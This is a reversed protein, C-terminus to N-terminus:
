LIPTHILESFELLSRLNWTRMNGHRFPEPLRWWEFLYYTQTQNQAVCCGFRHLLGLALEIKTCGGCWCDPPDPEPYNEDAAPALEHVQEGIEVCGAAPTLSCSFQALEAVVADNQINHPAFDFVFKSDKRITANAPATEGRFCAFESNASM